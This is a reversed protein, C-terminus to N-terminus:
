LGCGVPYKTGTVNEFPYLVLVSIQKAVSLVQLYIVNSHALLQCEWGDM